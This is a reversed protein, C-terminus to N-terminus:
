LRLIDMSIKNLLKINIVKNNEIIRKKSLKEIFTSKNYNRISYKRQLWVSFERYIEDVNLSQSTSWATEEYLFESIKDVDVIL